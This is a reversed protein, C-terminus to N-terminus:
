AERELNELYAKGVRVRAFFWSSVHKKKCLRVACACVIEQMCRTREVNLRSKALRIGLGTKWSYLNYFEYAEDLSDFETGITPNIVYGECKEAYARVSLELTTKRDPNMDREDPAKGLRVRRTWGSTAESCVEYRQGDGVVAAEEDKELELAPASM